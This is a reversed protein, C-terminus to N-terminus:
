VKNTKTPHKRKKQTTNYDIAVAELPIYYTSTETHTNITV